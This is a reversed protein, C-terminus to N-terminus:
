SGIHRGQKPERESYRRELLFNTLSRSPIITVDIYGFSLMWTPEKLHWAHQITWRKDAIRSTPHHSWGGCARESRKSAGWHDMMAQESQPMYPGESVWLPLLPLPLRGTEGRWINFPYKQVIFYIPFSSTTPRLLKKLSGSHCWLPIDAVNVEDEAHHDLSERLIARGLRLAPIVQWQDHANKVVAMYKNVGVKGHHVANNQGIQLLMNTGRHHFRSYTSEQNFWISRILLIIKRGICFPFAYGFEFYYKSFYKSIARTLWAVLRM